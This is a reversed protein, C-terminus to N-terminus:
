EEVFAAEGSREGQFSLYFTGGGEGRGVRSCPGPSSLRDFPGNGVDGCGAQRRQGSSPDFRGVAGGDAGRCNDGPLAPLPDDFSSHAGATFGVYGM